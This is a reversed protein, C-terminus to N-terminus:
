SALTMKPSAGGPWLNVKSDHLDITKSVSNCFYDIEVPLKMFNYYDRKMISPDNVAGFSSAIYVHVKGTMMLYKMTKKIRHEFYSLENISKVVIVLHISKYKKTCELLSKLTIPVLSRGTEKLKQDILFYDKSLKKSLKLYFIWHDRDQADM